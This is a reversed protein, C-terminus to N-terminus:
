NFHIKFYGCFCDRYRLLATKGTLSSVAFWVKPTMHRFPRDTAVLKLLFRDLAFLKTVNRFRMPTLLKHFILKQTM